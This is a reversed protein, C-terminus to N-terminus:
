RRHRIDRMGSWLRAWDLWPGTLKASDSYTLLMDAVLDVREEFTPTASPEGPRLTFSMSARPPAGPKMEGGWHLVNANWALVSGAPVPLPIALSPDVDIRELDNPFFPDRELPVVHMCASEEGVDSLSIWVNVLSTGRETVGRHPTWGRAGTTVYWAWIDPLVCAPAGILAEFVPALKTAVAWAEDFVYAFPTPINAEHLRRLGEALADTDTRPLVSLARAWGSALIRAREATVDARAPLPAARPGDIHLSPAQVRWFAPDRAARLIEDVNM